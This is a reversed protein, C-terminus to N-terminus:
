ETPLTEDSVTQQEKDSDHSRKISGDESRTGQLSILYEPGLEASLMGNAHQTVVPTTAAASSARQTKRAAEEAQEMKRLEAPNPARLKGTKKDRVARLGNSMVPVSNDSTDAVEATGPIINSEIEEEDTFAAPSAFIAASAALVSLLNKRM